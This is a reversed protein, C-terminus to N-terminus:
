VSIACSNSTSTSKAPLGLESEFIKLTDESVFMEKSSFGNFLELLNNLIKRYNYKVKIGFIGSTEVRGDMKTLSNITCIYWDFHTVFYDKMIPYFYTFGKPINNLQEYVTVKYVQHRLVRNYTKMKKGVEKEFSPENQIPRENLLSQISLLVTSINQSSTWSPGSWTGLISLCVKGGVYLNPNFRTKGDGTVFTVHPPSFPYNKPFKMKFLFFGKDYPTGEPGIIMARAQFIDDEDWQVYIGHTDLKNKIFNKRDHMIRKMAIKTTKTIVGATAM